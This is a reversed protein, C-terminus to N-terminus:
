QYTVGEAERGAQARYHGNGSEDRVPTKLTHVAGEEGRYFYSEDFQVTTGSQMIHRDDARYKEALEKSFFDYDTKEVFYDPSVGFDKAYSPNVTVYVSDNDKYFVKQPMNALLNKYNAKLRNLEDVRQRLETLESILEEKTKDEDRM